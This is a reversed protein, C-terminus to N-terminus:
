HCAQCATMTYNSRSSSTRRFSRGWNARTCIKAKTASNQCSTGRAAPRNKRSAQAVSVARVESVRATTSTIRTLASLIFTHFNFQQPQNDKALPYPWQSLCTSELKATGTLCGGYRLKRAPANACVYQVYWVVRLAVLQAMRGGLLSPLTFSMFHYCERSCHVTLITFGQHPSELVRIPPTQLNWKPLSRPRTAADAGPHDVVVASGL